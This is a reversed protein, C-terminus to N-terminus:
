ETGETLSEDAPENIEITTNRISKWMVQGIMALAVFVGLLSRFLTDQMAEAINLTISTKTPAFFIVILLPSIVLMLQTFMVWFDARKTTGCTEILVDRLLPKLLVIVAISIGLCLLVEITFLSLTNM